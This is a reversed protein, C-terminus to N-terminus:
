SPSATKAAAVPRVARRSGARWEDLDAGGRGVAQGPGNGAADM